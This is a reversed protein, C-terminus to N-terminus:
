QGPLLTSVRGTIGRISGDTHADVAVAMDFVAILHTLALRTLILRGKEDDTCGFVVDLHCLAAVTESTLRGEIPKVRAGLGIREAAAAMVKVKAQGADGLGSEHIRTVNTDTVDDFDLITIDRVGGRVLQEFVASGTGGAGVVGVRLRALLRQGDEGFARIQRDYIEADIEADPMGQAHLLRLRRGIVRLRELPAVFGTEDYIRGTFVPKETTGGVILSVYFPAGSRALASARLAEDVGDDRKSPVAGMRPHTHVFIPIARDLAASRLFPWYGQSRIVLSDGTREAYHEDPVWGLSRGLLTLEDEGDAWGAMVFGATEVPLYLLAVIENWHEDRLALTRTM